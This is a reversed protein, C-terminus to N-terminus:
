GFLVPYHSPARNSRLSINPRRLHLPSTGFNGRGTAGENIYVTGDANLYLCFDIDDYSQNTDGNSLGIRRHTNTETATTEMYGDGSAITQTSVAGANWGESSNKTLSNGSASVGVVNTWSVSQGPQSVLVVNTLTSGNSYYYRQGACRV